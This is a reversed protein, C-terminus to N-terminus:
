TKEVLGAQVLEDLQKQGGAFDRESVETGEPLIDGRQTGSLSRGRAVRYGTSPAEDAGEPRPAGEPETGAQNTQQRNPETTQGSLGSQAQEGAARQLDELITRLEENSKGNPDPASAGLRGALTNIENILADREKAERNAM